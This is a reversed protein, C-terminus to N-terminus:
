SIIRELAFSSHGGTELSLHAIRWNEQVCFEHVAPIVGYSFGKSANGVCYDHGAIFGDEKVKRRSLNLEKLTQEYSHTTDIYVWDFFDDEFEKLAVGSRERIISVRDDNDFRQKVKRMKEENYRESDWVDILFLQAPNTTSLIKESFDGKDVGLEAVTGKQPMSTLMDERDPHTTVDNLHKKQLSHPVANVRDRVPKSETSEPFATQYAGKLLPHLRNPSVEMIKTKYEDWVM